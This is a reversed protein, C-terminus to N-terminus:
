LLRMPPFTGMKALCTPTYLGGGGKRRLKEERRKREEGDMQGGARRLGWSVAYASPETAGAAWGVVPVDVNGYQPLGHLNADFILGLKEHVNRFYKRFDHSEYGNSLDWQICSSLWLGISKPLLDM